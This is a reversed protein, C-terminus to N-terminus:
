LLPFTFNLVDNRDERPGVGRHKRAQEARSRDKRKKCNAEHSKPRHKYMLKDNIQVVDQLQLSYHIRSTLILFLTRSKVELLLQSLLTAMHLHIKETQCNNVLHNFHVEVTKVKKM